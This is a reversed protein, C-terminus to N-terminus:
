KRKAISSICIVMLNGLCVGRTVFLLVQFHGVSTKAHNARMPVLCIGNLLRQRLADPVQSADATDQFIIEKAMLFYHLVVVAKIINTIKELSGIIPM